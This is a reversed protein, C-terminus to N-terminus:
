SSGFDWFHFLDIFFYSSSSFPSYLCFPPFLYILFQSFLFVCVFLCGFLYLLFPVCVFLCISLNFRGSTIPSSINSVKLWPRHM